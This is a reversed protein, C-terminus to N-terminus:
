DIKNEFIEAICLMEFSKLRNLKWTWLGFFGGMWISWHLKQPVNVAEQFNGQNFFTFFPWLIKFGSLKKLTLYFVKKIFPFVACSMAPKLVDTIWSALQKQLIACSKWRNSFHFFFILYLPPFFIKMKSLFFSSLGYNLSVWTKSNKEFIWFEVFGFFKKFVVPMLWMGNSEAKTTGVAYLSKSNEGLKESADIM